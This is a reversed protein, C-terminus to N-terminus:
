FEDSGETPERWKNPEWERAALALVRRADAATLWVQRPPVRARVLERFQPGGSAFYYFPRCVLVRDTSMDHAQERRSPHYRAKADQELRGNPGRFYVNDERGAFREDRYYQDFTPTEDVRGLWVIRGREGPLLMQGGLGLVWEGLRRNRRIDPRCTALTLWRGERDVHPAFGTDSSMIYAFVGADANPSTTTAASPRTSM